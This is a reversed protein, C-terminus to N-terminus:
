RKLIARSNIVFQIDELSINSKEIDNYYDIIQTQKAFDDLNAETFNEKSIELGLLKHKDKIVIAIEKKEFINVNNLVSFHYLRIFNIFRDIMKDIDEEVIDKHKKIITRALFGYNYSAIKFVDFIKSTDHVNEFVKDRLKSDDLKSYLDKLELIKNDRALILETKNQPLVNKKKQFFFLFGRKKNKEQNIDSNIKKIEVFLRDIENRLLESTTLPKAQKKGKKDKSDTKEEIVATEKERITKLSLIEDIIFKFELYNTYETLNNNLKKFNADMAKKEEPSLDDIKKSILNEYINTYTDSRYDGINYVGNLFSDLIIRGDVDRLDDLKKILEDKKDQVEKETVNLTKLVEETKNKYYKDIIPENVDYIHRINVLIHVILDSSKWYVKEFTEKVRDSNIDGKDAEELLVTMYENAYESIQFDKGSLRVGVEEFKNICAMIDQNIITLNKKYYGNIKYTLKDLQMREFSTQGAESLVLNDLKFINESVTAIEENTQISNIKDYRSNMESIAYNNITDYRAIMEELTKKLERIQKVGKKPLVEIMEKDIDIQEDLENVLDSM